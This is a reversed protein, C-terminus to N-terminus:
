RALRGGPDLRTLEKAYWWPIGNQVFAVATEPGLLPAAADAFNGLMNAKLTVLVVDQVGLDTPQSSANVRGQITKDGHLLRIGGKQMAELHAGRAIVSVEEGSAALKAAIHGGVAGAGFVCLKM